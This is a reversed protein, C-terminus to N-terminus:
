TARAAPTTTAAQAAREKGHSPKGRNASRRTSKRSPRTRSDELAASARSHRTRANRRATTMGGARRHSASIGPAATDVYAARDHKEPRALARAFADAGRGVRRGIIEGPDIPQEAPEVARLAGSVRRRGARLGHKGLTRALSTALPEVASAFAEQPTTARKEVVLSPRGTVVLKIRCVTDVGGKPGNVDDFRVTGREILRAAHGIRRALQSRIRREFSDGLSSSSRIVIPTQKLETRGLTRKTSKHSRSPFSPGAM